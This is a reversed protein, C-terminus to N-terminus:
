MASVSVWAVSGARPAVGTGPQHTQRTQRIGVPADGPVVSALPIQPDRPIACRLLPLLRLQLAPAGLVGSINMEMILRARLKNPHPAPLGCGGLLLAVAEGWVSLLASTM